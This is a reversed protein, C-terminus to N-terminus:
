PRRDRCEPRWRGDLAGLVEKALRWPGPRVDPDGAPVLAVAVGLPDLCAALHIAARHGHWWSTVVVLRDWGLEAALDAALRAEGRTTSPDPEVCRVQPGDCDGDLAVLDEAAGASAVLLREGTAVGPLTLALAMREREGGLVLVPVSPDLGPDASAPGPVSTDGALVGRLDTLAPAAALVVALLVTAVLM